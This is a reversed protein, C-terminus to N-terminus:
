DAAAGTPLEAHVVEFTEVTAKIGTLEEWRDLHQQVADGSAKATDEDRWLTVSMTRMRGDDHLLYAGLFGETERAVPLYDDKFWARGIEWNEQTVSEYRVARAWM